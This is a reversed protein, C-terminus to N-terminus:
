CSTIDENNNLGYCANDEVQLRLNYRAPHMHVCIIKVM